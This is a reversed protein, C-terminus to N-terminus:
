IVEGGRARARFLTLSRERLYVGPSLSSSRPFGRCSRHSHQRRLADLRSEWSRGSDQDGGLWGGIEGNGEGMVTRAQRRNLRCGYRGFICRALTNATCRERARGEDEGDTKTQCQTQRCRTPSIAADPNKSSANGVSSGARVGACAQM